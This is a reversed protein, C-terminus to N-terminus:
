RQVLDNISEAQILDIKGNYYSRFTFEGPLAHRVLNANCLKSIINHSVFSGGHCNIEIVDEGTFSNPGMFYSVLCHDLLVNDSYVGKKLITNPTPSKKTKTIKKYLGVLSPGSIRIVNIAGFGESTCQAIIVDETNLYHM